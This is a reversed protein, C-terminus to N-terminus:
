TNTKLTSWSQSMIWASIQASSVSDSDSLIAPFVFFVYVCFLAVQFQHLCANCRPIHSKSTAPRYILVDTLWRPLSLPRSLSPESYYFFFFVHHSECQQIIADLGNMDEQKATTCVPAPKRGNYHCWVRSFASLEPRGPNLSWSRQVPRWPFRMALGGTVRCAARWSQCPMLLHTDRCARLGGGGWTHTYIYIHIHTHASM